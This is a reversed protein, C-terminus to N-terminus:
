NFIKKAEEYSKLDGIDHRHGAMLWAHVPRQSCFWAIFDGPADTACITKGNADLTCAKKIYPIDDKTYIYFPPVAWNSKPEVPKEQMELVKDNEDIIAVGTKQLKKIEGEYHRMICATNKEKQYVIFDILSFDLINDGALVIVKENINCQILAFCIDKVAGLRNENETSGDDLITVPHNFIRSKKWLDFYKYFKHNSIVIHETIEECSDIDDILRDLISKEGVKLLPKPFNETLPYLRTAYGAALIISKM